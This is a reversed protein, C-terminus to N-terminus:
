FRAAILLLTETRITNLSLSRGYMSEAHQPTPALKSIDYRFLASKKKFYAMTHKMWNVDSRDPTDERPSM